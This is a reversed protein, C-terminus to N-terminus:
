SAESMPEPSAAATKAEARDRAQEVAHRLDVGEPPYEAGIEEEAPPERDPAVKKMEKEALLKAPLPKDVPKDLKKDVAAGKAGPKGATKLGLPDHLKKRGLERLERLEKLEDERLMADIGVANRLEASARRFERLGRGIAKFLKPMNKPGVALIVIIAVIILEEMGVGLM